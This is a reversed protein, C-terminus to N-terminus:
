VINIKDHKAASLQMLVFNAIQGSSALYLTSIVQNLKTQKALKAQWKCRAVLIRIEVQQICDHRYAAAVPYM